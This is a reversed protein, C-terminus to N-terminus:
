ICEMSRKAEFEFYEMGNRVLGADLGLALAAAITPLMGAHGEMLREERKGQAIFVYRGRLFVARGGTEVHKAVPGPESAYFIVEGDCYKAMESVLEDDANLVAAGEPLVVDVQTRVVNAMREDDHIDFEELKSGSEIGTVIGVRCRDYALGDALIQRPGNEFVAADVNRNLLMKRSGSWDGEGPIRRKGVYLGENCALGVNFGSMQLLASLKMAAEANNGTGTIGVVPIRGSEGEGFLSDAIARGVPRPKGGAPKLHM